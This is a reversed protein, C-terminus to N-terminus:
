ATSRGARRRFRSTRGGAAASRPSAVESGAGAAGGLAAVAVGGLVTLAVDAPLRFRPVGYGLVTAALTLWLGALLPALPVGRRRMLVLGYVGPPLLLWFWIAGAVELGFARGEAHRAQRIPQLVGFTRGLRAAVVVPVRGAHDRAYDLGKDRAQDAAVSEDAFDGGPVCRIEWSGIDRGRYTRGCNAGALLGGENTSLIVPREFTVANRVTWPAVVVVVALAVVGLTALRRPRLRLAVPLALVVILLLGEGRTLAALGIAVGLAAARAVSPADLLQYAALGAAATLLGLLTESMVAADASVLVPSLAALLAAVLGAREGAVRRALLGVVVIAGTGVVANAVRHAQWGDLGALSPLSLLLPFLPPHLATVADFGPAVYGRGDAILNALGHYYASDGRGRLHPTIALVYVLRVALGTAAITTLRRTFRVAATPLAM